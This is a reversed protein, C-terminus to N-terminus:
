ILVEGPSAPLQPADDPLEFEDEFSQIMVPQTLKIWREQRNHDVKCGVCEKMEGEEDLTFHRALEKKARLVAEKEGAILIDDVWSLFDLLGTTNWHYFLCVDAKSRRAEILTMITCLKKWFQIAAQCTGYLTKKLLLVVNGPFYKEFGKPVSVYMKHNPDFEATLFAGRVDVIETWFGAMVILALIIRIKIDNMVPSAKDSSDVHDGDRQEFERATIRAKFRGSATKKMVWTTSLVKAGAPIKSKEEPEFVGHDTM